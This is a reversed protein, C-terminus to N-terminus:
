RNRPCHRGRAPGPSSRRHRCCIAPSPRRWGGARRLLPPGISAPERITRFDTRLFRQLGDSPPRYLPIISWSGVREGTAAPAAGASRGASAAASASSAASRAPTSARTCQHSSSPRAPLRPLKGGRASRRSDVGTASGVVRASTGVPQLLLLPAVRSSTRGGSPGTRRRTSAQAPRTAGNTAAASSRSRSSRSTSRRALASLMCRASNSIESRALPESSNWSISRLSCATTAVSIYASFKKMARCSASRSVMRKTYKTSVASSTQCDGSRSSSDSSDM